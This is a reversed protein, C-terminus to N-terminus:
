KKYDKTFHKYFEWDKPVLKKIDEETALTWDTYSFEPAVAESILGYDIDPPGHVNYKSTIMLEAAKWHGGPVILQLKHGALIDPGLITTSCQGEPTIVHYKIPLGLHFYHVIGFLNKHFYNIPSDSTLLYFISSMVARKSLSGDETRITTSESSTYTRLFYGGEVHPELQLKEILLEKDM